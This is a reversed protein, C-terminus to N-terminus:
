KDDWPEWDHIYSPPIKVPITSMKVPVVSLASRPPSVSPSRPPTILPSTSTLEKTIENIRDYYYGKKIPQNLNINKRQSKFKTIKWYWPYSYILKIEKGKEIKERFSIASDTKFWYNFNIIAYYYESRFSRKILITKIKGLKLKEIQSQLTKRTNLDSSTLNIVFLSTNNTTKNNNQM